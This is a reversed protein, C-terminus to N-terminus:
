KKGSHGCTESFSYTDKMRPGQDRRLRYGENAQASTCTIHAFTFDRRSTATDSAQGARRGPRTGPPHEVKPVSSSVRFAAANLLPQRPWSGQVHEPRVLALNAPVGRDGAGAGEECDEQFPCSM